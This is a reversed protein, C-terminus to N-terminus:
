EASASMAVKMESMSMSLEKKTQPTGPFLKPTLGVTRSGISHVGIKLCNKTALSKLANIVEPKGVM